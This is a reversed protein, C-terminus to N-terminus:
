KGFMGSKPRMFGNNVQRQLNAVADPEHQMFIANAGVDKLLDFYQTLLLLDM